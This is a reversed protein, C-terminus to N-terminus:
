SWDQAMMEFVELPHGRQPDTTRLFLRMGLREMVRRSAGNRADTISVIRDLTLATFGHALCARGGESALGKGWHAPHLRWGVEVAPLVEPLFTPVSLGLYGILEHDPKLEAALLGFGDVEHRRIQHSLFRETEERDLGQGMPYRWVEPRAFVAALADLDTTRWPRLLLRDTEIGHM